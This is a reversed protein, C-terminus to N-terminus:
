KIEVIDIRDRENRNRGQNKASDQRKRREKDNVPNKQISRKREQSQPLRRDDKNKKRYYETDEETPKHSFRCEDDKFKCRGEMYFRCLEKSKKTFSNSQNVHKPFEDTEPHINKCRKDFWCNGDLFYTCVKRVGINSADRGRSSDDEDIMEKPDPEVDTVLSEMKQNHKENQYGGTDDAMKWLHTSEGKIDDEEVCPYEGGRFRDGIIKSDKEIESDIAENDKVATSHIESQDQSENCDSCSGGVNTRKLLDLTDTLHRITRVLQLKENIMNTLNNRLETNEKELKKTDRKLKSVVKKDDEGDTLELCSEVNTTVGSEKTQESDEVAVGNLEKLQYEMKAYREELEEKEMKQKHEQKEAITIREKIIKNEIELDSIQEEMSINNKILKDKEKELKSLDHQKQINDKNLSRIKATKESIEQKRLRTEERMSVLETCCQKKKKGYDTDLKLAEELKQNKNELVNNVERLKENENKLVNISGNGIIQNRCEYCQYLICKTHFWKKCKFCDIMFSDDEAYTKRCICFVKTDESKSSDKINVTSTRQQKQQEMAKAKETKTSKRQSKRLQSEDQDDDMVDQSSFAMENKKPILSNYHNGRKEVYVRRRCSGLEHSPDGTGKYIYNDNLIYGRKTRNYILVVVDTEVIQQVIALILDGMNSNYKGRKIYADLEESPAMSDHISNAYHNINNHFTTQLKKLIEEKEISIQHTELLSKRISNVICYGDGAILIRDFLDEKIIEGELEEARERKSKGSSQAVLKQLLDQAPPDDAHQYLCQTRDCLGVKQCPGLNLGAAKLIRDCDRNAVDRINGLNGGRSRRTRAYVM